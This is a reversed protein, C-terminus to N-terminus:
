LLFHPGTIAKWPRRQHNFLEGMDTLFQIYRDLRDDSSLNLADQKMKLRRLDHRVDASRALEILEQKEIESLTAM